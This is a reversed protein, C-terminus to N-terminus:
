PPDDREIPDFLAIFAATKFTSVGGSEDYVIWDGPCVLARGTWGHESMDRGCHGCRGPTNGWHKIGDVRHSTWWGKWRLADLATSSRVRGRGKALLHQRERTLLDRQSPRREPWSDTMFLM